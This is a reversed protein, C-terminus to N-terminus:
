SRAFSSNTLDCLAASIQELPLVLDVLGARAAARPMGYVVCTQADQGIVFGGRDKVRQLGVIGDQGMGTLIAALTSSGYFEAVSATTVDVSPVHLSCGEDPTLAVEAEDSSHSRRLRLHRGAPAILVQGKRLLMGDRAEVVSVESCANLRDALPRTFGPPMHQVVIVPTAFDRPLSPLIKSLAVPGGTSTGIAVCEFAERRSRAAADAIPPLTVKPYAVATRKVGRRAFVRVKAILDRAVDKINVYAADPKPIFDVAGADLARFTTEAGEQTLASVMIVPINSQAAIARVAELGGMGPMAVDMTVVDPRLNQAKTIAEEGNRATGCVAIEAESELMKSIAQRMFASDDVVLVNIRM